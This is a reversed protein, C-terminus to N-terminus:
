TTAVYGGCQLRPNGMEGLQM